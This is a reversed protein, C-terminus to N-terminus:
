DRKWPRLLDVRLTLSTDGIEEILVRAAARGEEPRDIRALFVSGVQLEEARLQPSFYPETEPLAAKVDALSHCGQLKDFDGAGGLSVFAVSRTGNGRLSPPYGAENAIVLDQSADGDGTGNPLVGRVEPDLAVWLTHREGQFDLTTTMGSTTTGSTTSGSTTGAPTPAPKSGPDGCGGLLAGAGLVVFLLLYSSPTRMGGQVPTRTRFRYGLTHNRVSTAM